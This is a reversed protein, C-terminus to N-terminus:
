LVGRDRLRGHLDEAQALTADARTALDTARTAAFQLERRNQDHSESLTQIMDKGRQIEIAFAAVAASTASTANALSNVLTALTVLDADIEELTRPM